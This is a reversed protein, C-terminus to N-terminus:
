LVPHLEALTSHGAHDADKVAQM